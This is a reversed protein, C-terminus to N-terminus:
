IAFTTVPKTFIRFAAQSAALVLAANALISIAIGIPDGSTTVLM